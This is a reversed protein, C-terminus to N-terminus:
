RKEAPRNTPHHRPPALLHTVKQKARLIDADSSFHDADLLDRHSINFVLAERRKALSSNSEKPKGKAAALKKQAKARDM